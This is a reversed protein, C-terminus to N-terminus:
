MPWKNQSKMSRRREELYAIASLPQAFSGLPVPIVPPAVVFPFPMRVRM